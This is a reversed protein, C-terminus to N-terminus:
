NLGNRQSCNLWKQRNCQTEKCSFECISLEVPVEQILRTKLWQQTQKLGNIVTIQIM